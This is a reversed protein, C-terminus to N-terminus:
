VFMALIVPISSQLTFANDSPIVARGCHNAFFKGFVELLQFFSQDLM